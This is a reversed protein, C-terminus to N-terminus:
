FFLLGGRTDVFYPMGFQSLVLSRGEYLPEYPFGSYPIRERFGALAAPVPGAGVVLLRVLQGLYVVTM